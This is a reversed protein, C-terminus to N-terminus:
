NELIGIVDSDSILRYKLEDKGQRIMGAYAKMVVRDGVKCRPLINGEGDKEDFYALPGLAVVVGDTQAMQKRELEQSTAVIVGAATKEEVQEPLILVSLGVPTIGSSNV